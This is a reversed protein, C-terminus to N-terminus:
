FAAASQLKQSKKAACISVRIVVPRAKLNSVKLFHLEAFRRLRPTTGARKSHHYIVGFKQGNEAAIHDFKV